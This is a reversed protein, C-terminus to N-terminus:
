ALSNKLMILDIVSLKNDSNMDANKFGDGSIDTKGVLHQILAVIDATNVSGNNDADGKTNQPAPETVTTTVATTAAPTTVTT